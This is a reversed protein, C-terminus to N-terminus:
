AGMTTAQTHGGRGSKQSRWQISDIRGNLIVRQGAGGGGRFDAVVNPAHPLLAVSEFDAGHDKLYNKIVRAAETTDGPPNPSAGQILEELFTVYSECNAHLEAVIAERVSM